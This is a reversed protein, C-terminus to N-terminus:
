KQYTLFVYDGVCDTDFDDGYWESFSSRVADSVPVAIGTIQVPASPIDADTATGDASKKLYETWQSALQQLAEQERQVNTGFLACHAESDYFSFFKMETDAAYGQGDIECGSAAKTIQGDTVTVSGSLVDGAQVAAPDIKDFGLETGSPTVKVAPVSAAASSDAAPQSDAPATTGTEGCGAFTLLCASVAACTLIRNILKM